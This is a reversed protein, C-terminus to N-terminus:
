RSSPSEDRICTVSFERGPNKFGFSLWFIIMIRLSKDCESDLDKESKYSCLRKWPHEETRNRDLKLDYRALEDVDGDKLECIIQVIEDILQKQDM